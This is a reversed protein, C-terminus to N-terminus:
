SRVQVCQMLVAGEREFSPDEHELQTVAFLEALYQTKASGQWKYERGDSRITLQWLPGTIESGTHATTSM